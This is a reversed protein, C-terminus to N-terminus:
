LYHDGEIDWFLDGRNFKTKDKLLEQIDNTSLPKAM